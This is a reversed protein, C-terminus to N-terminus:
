TVHEDHVKSSRFADDVVRADRMARFINIFDMALFTSYAAFAFGFVPLFSLTLQTWFFCSLGAMIARAWPSRRWAGNIALVSLRALGFLYFILAWTSQEFLSLLLQYGRTGPKMLEPNHTLLWGIFLLLTAPAWESLRPLFADAFTARFHALIM